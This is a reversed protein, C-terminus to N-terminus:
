SSPPVSQDAHVAAKSTHWRPKTSYQQFNRLCGYWDSEVAPGFKKAKSEGRWTPERSSYEAAVETSKKSVSQGKNAGTCATSVPILRPLTVLPVLEATLTEAVALTLKDTARVPMTRRMSKRNSTFKHMKCKAARYINIMIRMARVTYAPLSGSTVIGDCGHYGTFRQQAATKHPGNYDPTLVRMIKFRFEGSKDALYPASWTGSVVKWFFLPIAVRSRKLNQCRM